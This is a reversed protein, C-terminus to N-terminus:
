RNDGSILSNKLAVLADHYKLHAEAEARRLRRAGTNGDPNDFGLSHLEQLFAAYEDTAKKYEVYTIRVQECLLEQNGNLKPDAPGLSIFGHQIAYRTLGAVDHIGLKEMLHSRHCAATKFTIHLESAIEKTSLGSAVLKLM